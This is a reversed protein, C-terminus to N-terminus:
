ITWKDGEMTWEDGEITWEGGEITRARRVGHDFGLSLVSATSHVTSVKDLWRTVRFILEGALEKRVGNAKM